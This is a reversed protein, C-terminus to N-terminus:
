AGSLTKFTIIITNAASANSATLRFGCVDGTTMSGAARNYQLTSTSNTVNILKSGGCKSAYPCPFYKLNSNITAAPM